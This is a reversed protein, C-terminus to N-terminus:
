ATARFAAAMLEIESRPLGLAKAQVRWSRVAQEVSKLIRSADAAKLGYLKATALALSVDGTTDTADIALAHDRKEVNPNVDYAPALRWGDPELIFGHNRLHDDTNSVLINFVARTWLQRLDRARSRTSGRTSLFEALDLYSGGQGDQRDLLTLASVFFRRRGDGTRDFRRCAFTRHRSALKLLKAPPVDVGAKQALAHTVMEWAGVDRRDERSPFKAIWMAGNADTFNAKPRAGGLASGPALLASLWQAYRARDPADPEEIALSAAELERLSALPPASLARNDDLYPASENRRFRLAGTRCHDHVGLLFDWDSLSHPSRKEVRALLAERREMLLRGWRDPASDVFIRFVGAANSPYSESGHLQLDPDLQFADPRSLWERDYVFSFVGHGRASAYFLTGVRCAESFIDADLVVEVQERASGRGSKSAGAM